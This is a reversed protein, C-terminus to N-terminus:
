LVNWHQAKYNEMNNTIVNPLKKVVNQLEFSAKKWIEYTEAFHLFKRIKLLKPM